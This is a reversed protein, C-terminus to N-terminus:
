STFNPYDSATTSLGTIVVRKEPNIAELSYDGRIARRSYWGGEYVAWVGWKAEKHYPRLTYDDPDFILIRGDPVTPDNVSVMHHNPIFNFTGFDTEFSDFVNSAKKDSPSYQRMNNTWNAFVRKYFMHAMVTKGATEKGVNNYGKQVAELFDYETLIAGAMAVANQNFSSQFVGGMTSPVTTSGISRLGRLLTNEMLQPMTTRLKKEVEFTLRDDMQGYIPTYRARASFQVYEDFIQFYNYDVEGLTIPGLPSEANEKVAIGIIRTGTGAAQAAITTGAFGRSATYTTAGVATILVQEGSAYEVVHGVMYYGINTPTITSPGAENAAGAGALTDTVPDLYQVTWELKLKPVELPSGQKITATLPYDTRKILKPFKSVDRIFLDAVGDGSYQSIARASVTTAAM